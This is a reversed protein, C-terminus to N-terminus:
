WLSSEKAGSAVSFPDAGDGYSNRGGMDGQSFPDNGGDGYPNRGDIDGQNFPDDGGDGYPNREDLSVALLPEGTLVGVIVETRPTTYAKRDTSKNTERM